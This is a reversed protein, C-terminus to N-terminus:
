RGDGSSSAAGGAAPQDDWLGTVGSEEPTLGNADCHCQWLHRLTQRLAGAEGHKRWSRSIRPFGKYHGQWNGEAKSMWLAATPPM